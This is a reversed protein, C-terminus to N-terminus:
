RDETESFRKGDRLMLEKGFPVNLVSPGYIALFFLGESISPRTKIHQNTHKNSAASVTSCRM